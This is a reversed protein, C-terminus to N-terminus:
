RRGVRNYTVDMMSVGLSTAQMSYSSPSILMITVTANPMLGPFRIQLIATDGTRRGSVSGKLVMPSANSGLTTTTQDLNGTIENGDLTLTLRSARHLGTQGTCVMDSILRTSETRISSKCTTQQMSEIPSNRETGSGNWEGNLDTLKIEAGATYPTIWAALFAAIGATLRKTLTMSM